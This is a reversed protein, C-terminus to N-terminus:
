RAKQVSSAVPKDLLYARSAHTRSTTSTCIFGMMRGTVGNQGRHSFFLDSNATTCQSSCEIHHSQVGCRVLNAFISATLNIHPKPWHPRREVFSSSFQAAVEEGVEFHKASICPSVYARIRAPDAGLNIMQDISNDIVGDVHGRWGAHCAGITNTQADALLIAACDAASISLLLDSQNTVLGDFGQYLGPKEVVLVDSGHVQGAIAMNDPTLGFYGSALSRNKLVNENSDTTSLGLNLSEYPSPSVGGKRTSFGALVPQSFISPAIV